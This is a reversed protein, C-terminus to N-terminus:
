IFRETTFYENRILSVFYWLLAIGAIITLILTVIAFISWGKELEDETTTIVPLVEEQICVVNITKYVLDDGSSYDLRTVFTYLGSEMDLPLAVDFNFNNLAGMNLTASKLQSIGLEQNELKLNISESFTGLNSVDVNLSITEGCVFSNKGTSASGLDVSHRRSSSSGGGGGSSGSGGSGVSITYAQESFSGQNDTVRLRVSHTGVQSSSPTWSVIGTNSDLNMGSPGTILAFTFPDNEADVANADYTYGSNRTATTVPSTVFVPADNVPSVTLVFSAQAGNCDLGVLEQGNWNTNLQNLILNSGSFGLIFNPSTIIVQMNIAKTDFCLNRLEPYVITGVPSDEPIIQNQLQAWVPGGTPTGSPGSTPGNPSGPYPLTPDESPSTPAFPDSYPNLGNSGTGYPNLGNSGTGYPNLGNSGVGYPNLGNSGTGYPNLGNSGGGYPNLGNSGTGYVSPDYAIGVPLAIVLMVALMVIGALKKLLKMKVEIEKSKKISFIFFNNKRKKL